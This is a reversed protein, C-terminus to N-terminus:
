GKTVGEPHPDPHPDPPFSISQTLIVKRFAPKVWSIRLPQNPLLM